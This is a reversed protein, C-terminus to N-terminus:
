AAPKAAYGNTILKRATEPAFAAVDGANLKTYGATVVGGAEDILMESRALDRTLIVTETRM